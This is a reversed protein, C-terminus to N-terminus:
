GENNSNEEVNASEEDEIDEEGNDRRASERLTFLDSKLKYVEIAIGEIRLVIGEDPPNGICDECKKELYEKKLEEVFNRAWIKNDEYGITASCGLSIYGGDDGVLGVDPVVKIPEFNTITNNYKDDAKGYYYEEVMPVGIEKCRDKLSQWGYEFVNGDENTYTMRYVAIKYENEKCGYNYGKQVMRGSPLYGVIEGYVTEGKHLKGLFNEKSAKIWIDNENVICNHRSNKITNRSAYLYDYEVEKIKVKFMKLVNEFVTLKRKVLTHSCLFSTGHVKRSISIINNPNIKHVNRLLQSTDVHFKFVNDIVRSPERKSTRKNGDGSHRAPPPTYKRCVVMGNIALFEHGEKMFKDFEKDNDFYKKFKDIEIVLGNSICGRLRLCKVRNHKSLYKAMDPYDKIIQDGICMNSDFYIVKTDEKTDVGVIVQTVPVGNLIVDSTVIKDAGEIKKINGLRAVFCM